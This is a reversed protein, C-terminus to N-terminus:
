EGDGHTNGAGPVAGERSPPCCFRPVGADRRDATVRSRAEVGAAMDALAANQFFAPLPLVVGLRERLRALVQMAHLSDGGLAFFDDSDASALCM